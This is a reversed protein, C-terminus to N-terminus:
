QGPYSSVIASVVQSGDQGVRQEVIFVGQQLFQTGQPRQPGPRLDDDVVEVPLCTHIRPNSTEKHIM